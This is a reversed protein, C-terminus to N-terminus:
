DLMRNQSSADLHETQILEQLHRDFSETQLQSTKKDSIETFDAKMSGATTSIMQTLTDLSNIIFGITQEQLVIANDHLSLEKNVTKIANEIAKEIKNEISSQWSLMTKNMQESFQNM